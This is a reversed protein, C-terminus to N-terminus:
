GSSWVLYMKMGDELALWVSLKLMEDTIPTCIGFIKYSEKDLSIKRIVSFPIDWCLALCGSSELFIAPFGGKSVM